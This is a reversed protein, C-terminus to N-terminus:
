PESLRSQSCIYHIGRSPEGRRDFYVANSVQYYVAVPSMRAIWSDRNLYIANIVMFDAVPSKRAITSGRDPYAANLVMSDSQHCNQSYNLRPRSLCCKPGYLGCSTVNQGYILRLWSLCCKPGYSLECITVNQSNFLRPRSLCCESGYLGCSTVIRAISSGRDHTARPQHASQWFSLHGKCSVQFVSLDRIHRINGRFSTKHILITNDKLECFNVM